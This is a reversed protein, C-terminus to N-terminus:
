VRSKKLASYHQGGSLNNDAPHTNLLCVVSDAPFQYRTNDVKQAVQALHSCKRYLINKTDGCRHAILHWDYIFVQM